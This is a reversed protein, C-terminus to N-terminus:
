LAQPAAPLCTQHCTAFVVCAKRVLLTRTHTTRWRWGRKLVARLCQWGCVCM